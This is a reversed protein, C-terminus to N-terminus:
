AFNWVAQVSEVHRGGIRQRALSRERTRSGATVTETIGDSIETEAVVLDVASDAEAVGNRQLRLGGCGLSVSTSM